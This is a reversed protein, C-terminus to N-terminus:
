QLAPLAMDGCLETSPGPARIQIVSPGSARRWAAYALAARLDETQLYPYEALIKAEAWGDALLGLIMGVTVRTGNICPKGGM